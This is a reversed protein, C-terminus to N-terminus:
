VAEHNAESLAYGSLQMFDFVPKERKLVEVTIVRDPYQKKTVPDHALTQYIMAQTYTVVSYFYMSVVWTEGSQRVDVKYCPFKLNTNADKAVDRRNPNKTIITVCVEQKLYPAVKENFYKPIDEKRPLRFGRPLFPLQM